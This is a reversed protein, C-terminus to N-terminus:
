SSDVLWEFIVFVYSQHLQYSAILRRCGDCSFLRCLFISRSDALDDKVGSNQRCFRRQEFPLLLCVPQELSTRTAVMLAVMKSHGDIIDGGASDSM